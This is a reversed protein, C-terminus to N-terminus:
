GGRAPRRGRSSVPSSEIAFANPNLSSSNFISTTATRCIRRVNAVREDTLTEIANPAVDIKVDLFRIGHKVAADIGDEIKARRGVDVGIRERLNM